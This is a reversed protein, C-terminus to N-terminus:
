VITEVWRYNNIVCIDSWQAFRPSPASKNDPHTDLPRFSGNIDFIEVEFIQQQQQQQQSKQLNPGVKSPKRGWFWSIKSNKSLKWSIHRVELSNKVLIFGMNLPKEFKGM